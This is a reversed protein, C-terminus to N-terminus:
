LNAKTDTNNIRVIFSRVLIINKVNFSPHAVHSPNERFDEYTHIDKIKKADKFLLGM